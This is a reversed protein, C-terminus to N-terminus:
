LAEFSTKQGFNKKFKMCQNLLAMKASHFFQWFPVKSGTYMTGFSNQVQGFREPCSWFLKSPDLVIKWDSFNIIEAIPRVMSSSSLKSGSMMSSMDGGGMSMMEGGGGMKMGDMMKKMMDDMELAGGGGMAPM